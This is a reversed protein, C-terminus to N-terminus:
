TRAEKPFCDRVPHQVALGRRYRGPTVGHALRFATTLHGQGGFGTTIAIDALSRDTDRLLRAAMELRNRQLFRAPSERMAAKFARAFHYQSLRIAAALDRVRLPRQLNSRVFLFVKELRAKSLPASSGPFRPPRPTRPRTALGRLTSAHVEMVLTADRICCLSAHLTAHDPEATRLAWRAAAELMAAAHRLHVLVQDDGGARPDDRDTGVDHQDKKRDAIRIWL